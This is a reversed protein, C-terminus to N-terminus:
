ILHVTFNEWIPFYSNSSGHGMLNLNSVMAATVRRMGATTATEHRQRPPPPHVPTLASRRSTTGAPATVPAPTCPTTATGEVRITRVGSAGVRQFLLTIIRQQDLLEGAIM